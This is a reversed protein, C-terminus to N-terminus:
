KISNPKNEILYKELTSYWKEYFEFNVIDYGLQFKKVSKFHNFCTENANGFFANMALTLKYVNHRGLEFYNMTMPPIIEEHIDLFKLAKESESYQWFLRSYIVIFDIKGIPTKISNYEQIKDVKNRGLIEDWLVYRAKLIPHPSINQFEIEAQDLFFNARKIKKIVIEKQCFILYKFALFDYVLPKNVSKLWQYFFSSLEQEDVFSQLIYLQINRFTNVRQVIFNIVWDDGLKSSLYVDQFIIPIVHEQNSNGFSLKFLCALLQEDRLLIAKTVLSQIKEKSDFTDFAFDGLLNIFATKYNQPQLTYLQILNNWYNSDFTRLHNNFSKFDNFGIAKSLSNLTYASFGAKYDKLLFLRRLTSLSIQISHKKFIFDVLQVCDYTDQIDISYIRKIEEFLWSRQHDDIFIPKPM